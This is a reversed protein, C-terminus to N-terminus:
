IVDSCVFHYNKGGEQIHTKKQAHRMKKGDWCLTIGIGSSPVFFIGGERGYDKSEIIDGPFPM